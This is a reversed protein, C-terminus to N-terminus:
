VDAMSATLRWGLNTREVSSLVWARGADDYLRDFARISMELASPLLVIIWSMRTDGPLDVIGREGKTGQLISAPWGEMLLDEDTRRGGGYYSRNPQAASPRKISIVQNCRVCLYPKNPEIGAVFWKDTEDPKILYDGHLVNTGDFLGYYVASAYKGPNKYSFVPSTDFDAMVTGLKEDLPYLPDIPRYHNFPAGLYQAAKRYGYHVKTQIGAQDM